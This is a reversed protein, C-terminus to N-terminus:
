PCTLLQPHGPLEAINILQGQQNSSFALLTGEVPTKQTIDRKIQAMLTHKIEILTNKQCDEVLWHHENIEVIRGHFSRAQSILLSQQEFSPTKAHKVTRTYEGQELAHQEVIDYQTLDLSYLHAAEQTPLLWLASLILLGTCALSWQTKFWLSKAQKKPTTSTQAFQKLQQETLANQKKGLQYAKKLIQEFKDNNASM